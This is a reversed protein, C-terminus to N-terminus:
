NLHLSTHIELLLVGRIGSFVVLSLYAVLGRATSHGRVRVVVRVRVTM